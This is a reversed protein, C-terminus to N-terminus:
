APLHHVQDQRTEVLLRTGPKPEGGGSTFRIGELAAFIARIAGAHSRGYGGELALALAGPAAEVLMWTLAGFDGPFLLMSGLPDDFAADQGASVVVLDPEFRRIAPVFIEQFVLAYDAGTSGSELPANITYGVGPGAGQEEVSGTGPFIGRQHVSCYLVRDSTYFAAQTGNGHHVDWDVVAVRDVELLARATAVAVNNFLCFGMARDPMAHHGPPRVLAFAHDGDLAREVAQCAAGAAYLAVDFSGRTVYTDPDIFWVRGPPCARCLSRIATVQQPTHVRVLDALAATRPAIRCADGPVGVLAARLRAESEPHGPADHGASVDGMVVSVPM